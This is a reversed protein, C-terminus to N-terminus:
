VFHSDECAPMCFCIGCHATPKLIRCWEPKWRIDQFTVTACCAHLHIPCPVLCSTGSQDSQCVHSVSTDWEVVADNEPKWCNEHHQDSECHDTQPILSLCPCSTMRNSVKKEGDKRSCALCDLSAEGSGEYRSFLVSAAGGIGIEM